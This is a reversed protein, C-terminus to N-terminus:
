HRDWCDPLEVSPCQCQHPSFVAGRPTRGVQARGLQRSRAGAARLVVTFGCTLAAECDAASVADTSPPKAAVGIGGCGAEVQLQQEEEQRAAQVDQPGLVRTGGDAASSTTCPAAGRLPGRRRGGSGSAGVAFREEGRVLDVDRRMVMYPLAAGRGAHRVYPAAHREWTDMLPCHCCAPLLTRLFSRTSLAIGGAGVIQHAKNTVTATTPTLPVPLLSPRAEWSDRLLGLWQRLPPPPPSPPPRTDAPSHPCLSLLLQLHMVTHALASMAMSGEAEWADEGHMTSGLQAHSVAVGSPAGLGPVPEQVERQVAPQGTLVGGGRPGCVLESLRTRATPSARCVHWVQLSPRLDRAPSTTPTRGNCSFHIRCRVHVSGRAHLYKLCACRCPPGQYASIDPGVQQLTSLAHLLQARGGCDEVLRVCAAASGTRSCGLGDVGVAGAKGAGTGGAGAVGSVAVGQRQQWEPLRAAAETGGDVAAAGGDVQVAGEAAEVAEELLDRLLAVRDAMGESTGRGEGQARAQAQARAQSSGGRGARAGAGAERGPSDPTLRRRKASWPDGGRSGVPAAGGRGARRAAPSNPASSGYAATDDIHDGATAAAAGPATAGPAACLAPPLAGHLQRTFSSLLVAAAGARLLAQLPRGLPSREPPTRTMALPM